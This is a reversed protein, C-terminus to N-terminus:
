DLEDDWCGTADLEAAEKVPDDCLVTIHGM